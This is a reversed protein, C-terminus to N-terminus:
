GAHIQRWAAAITASLDRARHPWQDAETIDIGALKFRDSSTFDIPTDPNYDAVVRTANGRHMLQALEHTAQKARECLQITNTDSLKQARRQGNKIENKIQGTLVGEYSAHPMNAWKADLEALLRRTCLFLAYYYRNYASRGFQDRADQTQRRMAEVQLHRAVVEMRSMWEFKAAMTHYSAELPLTMTRGLLIPDAAAWRDRRNEFRTLKSLAAEREM